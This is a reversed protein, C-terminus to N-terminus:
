VVAVVVFVVVIAVGDVVVLAVMVVVVVVCEGRDHVDTLCLCQCHGCRFCCYAVIIVNFSTWHTLLLMMVSPGPWMAPPITCNDAIWFM